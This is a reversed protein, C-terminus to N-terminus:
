GGSKPKEQRLRRIETKRCYMQFTYCLDFCTQEEGEAALVWEPDAELNPFYTDAQYAYDIYTIHAISCYPLFQRYIEEGGAIFVDETPYKKCEKLVEELSHCVMAGKIRFGPDRSLVLNVRGALPQGGPLSELTKRGMVVVKGMTEERFLRRDAPIDALTNGRWGIAWNKDVAAIINM